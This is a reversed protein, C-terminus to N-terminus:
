VIKEHTTGDPLSFLVRVDDKSSDEKSRHSEGVRLKFDSSAM